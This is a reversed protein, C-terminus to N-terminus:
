LSARRANAPPAYHFTSEALGRNLRLSGLSFLNSNSDHDDIRVRHVVGYTPARSDVFLLIRRVQPDAVKPRLELVHGRWGYREADLLRYRYDEGIRARGTLFAFGSHLGDESVPAKVYQGPEGAVGPEYATLTRGNSVVVKANPADYDFRMRGSDDFRLLGTSRQTRQYLRNRYTQRFRAQATDVSDYFSQVASAVDRSSQAPADASAVSGVWALAVVATGIQRASLSRCLCRLRAFIPTTM